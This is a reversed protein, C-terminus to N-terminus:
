NKLTIVAKISLVEVIDKDYITIDDYRETNSASLLWKSSDECTRVRRLTSINSTRVAYINGPIIASKKIRKLVLISGHEIEPSMDNDMYQIALDFETLFPLYLYSEPDFNYVSELQSITSKYYPIYGDERSPSDYISGRGTLLWSLSYEPFTKVIAEAVAQSIGIHGQKIQYLSQSRSMGIATAFSNISMGANKIVFELRLWPKDATM